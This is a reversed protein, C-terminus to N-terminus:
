RPLLFPDKSCVFSCCLKGKATRIKLSRLGVCFSVCVREITQNLESTSEVVRPRPFPQSFLCQDVLVLFCCTALFAHKSKTAPMSQSEVFLGSGGGLFFSLIRKTPLQNELSFPSSQLDPGFVFVVRPVIGQLGVGGAWATEVPAMNPVKKPVASQGFM